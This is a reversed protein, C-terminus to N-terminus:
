IQEPSNTNHIGYFAPETMSVPDLIRSIEEPDLVKEELIIERVSRNENLAKKALDVVGLVIKDGDRAENVVKFHDIDFIALAKYRTTNFVGLEGYSEKLYNRNPLGTLEDEPQSSKVLDHHANKRNQCILFLIAM